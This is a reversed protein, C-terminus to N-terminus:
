DIVINEFFIDGKSNMVWGKVSSNTIAMLPQAQVVIIPALKEVLALQIKAYIAKRNDTNVTQAGKRILDSLEKDPFSKKDNIHPKIIIDYFSNPDSHVNMWNAILQYKRNVYFDLWTSVDHINIKLDVGIQSLREQWITAINEMVAVGKILEINLELGDTYGAEKILSKAKEIDFSPGIPEIYAWSSKPLSSWQSNGEGFYVNDKIAEKDICMAIAQRVRLDKLPKYSNIAMEILFLSNTSEPKQVIFNNKNKFRKANAAPVEYVADVEGSQLNTLAVSVDPLIKIILENIKASDTGTYSNNKELIIRDNPIWETFRFKGSGIPKKSINKEAEKPIIAIVSIDELFPAWPSKTKISVTYKDVSRIEKVPELKSHFTAKSKITRNFSYVVDDATLHRGNHFKVDNKLKFTYLTGGESIEWSEALDPEITMNPSIKTLYSFVNHGILISYSMLQNWHPDFNDIDGTMAITLSNDKAMVQHSPFAVMIVTM